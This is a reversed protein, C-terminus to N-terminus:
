RADKHTKPRDVDADLNGSREVPQINHLCFSIGPLPRRLHDSREIEGIAICYDIEARAGSVESEPKRRHNALVAVYESHINAPQGMREQPYPGRKLVLAVDRDAPHPGSSGLNGKLLAM